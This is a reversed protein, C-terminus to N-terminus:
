RNWSWRRTRTRRKRRPRLGGAGIGAVATGQTVRRIFEGGQGLVRMLPTMASMIRRGKAFDGNPVGTECLRIREEPLLFDGCACIRSRAGWAFCEPAPDGMGCSMQIHPRDRAPLRDRDIDGASEKIGIVNRPRGVRDLFAEGM